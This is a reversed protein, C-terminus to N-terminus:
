FEIPALGLLMVLKQLFEDALFGAQVICSERAKYIYFGGQGLHLAGEGGRRGQGPELRRGGPVAVLFTGPGLVTCYWSGPCYMVLVWSLVNGPCLVTSYCSVTGPGICYLVLDWSLVNGPCLVTCYWSVSCYMVLVCYLVTGPCM